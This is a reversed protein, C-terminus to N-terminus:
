ATVKKAKRVRVVVFGILAASALAIMAWYAANDLDLGTPTTPTDTRTNVFILGKADAGVGTLEAFCADGTNCKNNGVETTQAQGAPKTTITAVAKYNTAGEETVDLSSTYPLAVFALTQDHKLNVNTVKGPAFMFCKGKDCAETTANNGLNADSTVVTGAANVVYAAYKKGPTQDISPVKLTVNFKFYQTQDAFNGAVQKTVAAAYGDAPTDPLTPSAVLSYGNTFALASFTNADKGPTPDVKVSSTEGIDNVTQTATIAAVYLDGAAAGNEVFVLLTYRANSNWLAETVGSIPTREVTTAELVTYEYVGAKPWTLNKFLEASEKKYVSYEPKGEPTPTLTSDMKIKVTGSTGVVPMSTSADADGNLTEPKVTFSYTLGDTPLTTGVPVRLVKTIKTDAPSVETGTVSDAASAMTAGALPLVAALALAGAARVMKRMKNEMTTTGKM